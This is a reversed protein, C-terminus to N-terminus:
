PFAEDFRNSLRNALDLLLIGEHGRPGFRRAIELHKAPWRIEGTPSQWPYELCPGDGSLAPHSAELRDVVPALRHRVTALALGLAECKRRNRGLQFLLTSAARHSGRAREITIEGTRLLAAKSLKELSMQLLMALVSPEAGQLARVAALDANAQHYYGRAWDRGTAM